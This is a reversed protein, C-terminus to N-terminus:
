KQQIYENNNISYWKKMLEELETDKLLTMIELAIERNVNYLSKVCELEERDNIKSEWKSFRAKKSIINLLFTFQQTNSLSSSYINMEQAFFITDPFYSLTRNTLFSSYDNDFYESNEKTLLNEKTYTIAKVFDFPNKKTFDM